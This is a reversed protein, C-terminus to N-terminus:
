GAAAALTQVAGRRHRLLGAAAGALLLAAPAPEPVGVDAEIVLAFVYDAFAPPNANFGFQFLNYFGAALLGDFTDSGPSSPQLAAIFTGQDPIQGTRLVWDSDVVDGINDSLSVTIKVLHAGNPVKFGFNDFDPFTQPLFGFTGAVTNIGVGLELVTLTGSTDPLDGDNTEDYNVLTALSAGAALCLGLGIAWQRYRTWWPRAPVHDRSSYPTM